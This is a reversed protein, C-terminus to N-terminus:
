LGGDERYTEDIESLISDIRRLEHRTPTFGFGFGSLLTFVGEEVRPSVDHRDLVLDVALEFDSM